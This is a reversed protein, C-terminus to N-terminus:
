SFIYVIFCREGMSIFDVILHSISQPKLTANEMFLFVIFDLSDCCEIKSLALSFFACFHHIMVSSLSIGSSRIHYSFRWESDVSLLTWQPPRLFPYCVSLCVFYMNVTQCVRDKWDLSCSRLGSVIRINNWRSRTLRKLDLRANKIVVGRNKATKSSKVWTEWEM